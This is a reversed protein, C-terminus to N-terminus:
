VSNDAFFASQGREATLVWREETESRPARAWWDPMQFGSTLPLREGWGYWVVTREGLFAKLLGERVYLVQGEFGEPAAVTVSALAGDPLAQNLSQPVSRLDHALSFPGSPLVTQGADNLESHYSEFGYWHALDEVPVYDDGAVLLEDAYCGPRNGSFAPSWPIEGAFLYCDNPLNALTWPRPEGKALAAVVREM